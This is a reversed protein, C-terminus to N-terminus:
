RQLGLSSAAASATSDDRVSIKWKAFTQIANKQEIFGIHGQFSSLLTVRLSVGEHGTLSGKGTGIGDKATPASGYSHCSKTRAM